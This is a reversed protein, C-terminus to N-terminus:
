SGCSLHLLAFFLGIALIHAFMYLFGEMALFFMWLWEVAEAIAVAILALM